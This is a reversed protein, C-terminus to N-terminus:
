LGQIHKLDVICGVQLVLTTILRTLALFGLTSAILVLLIGDVFGSVELQPGIAEHVKHLLEHPWDFHGDVFNSRLENLLVADLFHSFLFIIVM